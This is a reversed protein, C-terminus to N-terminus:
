LVYSDNFDGSWGVELAHWTWKSAGTVGITLVFPVIEEGADFEFGNTNVDVGDVLFKPVGDILKCHVTFSTADAIDIGTDTSDTAAGNLITEVYVDGGQMNVCALEDYDDIAAQFAEAKRFGVAMEAVNAVTQAEQTIIIELDPNAGVTVGLPNQLLTNSGGLVYEVGELAAGDLTAILTGDTDLRPGLATAAGNVYYLAQMPCPGPFHAMNEDTDTGTPPGYNTSATLVPGLNPWTAKFYRNAFRSDAIKNPSIQGASIARRHIGM